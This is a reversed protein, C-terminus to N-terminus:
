RYLCGPAAWASLSVPGVSMPGNGGFDFLDDHDEEPEEEDEKELNNYQDAYPDIPVSPAGTVSSRRLQDGALDGIPDHLTSMESQDRADQISSINNLESNQLLESRDNVHNAKEYKSENRPRKTVEKNEKDDTKRKRRPAPSKPARPTKPGSEYKDQQEMEEYDQNNEYRRHGNLYAIEQEDEPGEPNVLFDDNAENEAIDDFRSTILNRSYYQYLVKTSIAREPLSFLKDSLGTKKWNMLMKNPPALDLNSIIDSTDSLQAKMEEGSLTKVEDIVMGIKKRRKRKRELGMQSDLPELVMTNQTLVNEGPVSDTPRIIHSDDTMMSATDMNNGNRNMVSNFLDGDDDLINPSGPSAPSSPPSDFPADPAGFDSVGSMSSGPRPSLGGGNDETNDHGNEIQNENANSNMEEMAPPPLGFVDDEDVIGVNLAGGFGDDLAPRDYMEFNNKMSVGSDSLITPDTGDKITISGGGISGIESWDPRLDNFQLPDDMHINSIDDPITISRINATTAPELHLQPEPMLDFDNIFDFMEPLTIASIAAETKGDPLDVVGPRFASKIKFAADQCDQLLYLTKRAYIRM